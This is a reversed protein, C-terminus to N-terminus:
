NNPPGRDSHSSFGNRSFTVSAVIVVQHTILLGPLSTRRAIVAANAVYGAVCCSSPCNERSPTAKVATGSGLAEPEMQHDHNMADCHHAHETKQSRHCMTMNKVHPCALGVLPSAMPSMLATIAIISLFKRMRPCPIYIWMSVFLLRM